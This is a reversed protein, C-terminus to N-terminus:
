KKNLTQLIENKFKEISLGLEHVQNNSEDMKKFIEKKFDGHSVDNKEIEKELRAIEKDNSLIYAALDKANSVSQFRLVFFSTLVSVAGGLILVVDMTRFTIDNVNTGQTQLLIFFNM